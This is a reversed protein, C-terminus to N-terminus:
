HHKSKDKKSRPGRSSTSGSGSSGSSASGSSESPSRRRHKSKKAKKKRGHDESSSSSSHRRRKTKPKDKARDRNKDKNKDKSKDKCKDRNRERDVESESESERESAVHTIPNSDSPAVATPSPDSGTSVDTALDARLDMGAGAGSFSGSVVAAASPMSSSGSSGSGSPDSGSPGRAQKVLELCRERNDDNLVVFLSRLKGPQQSSVVQYIRTLHDDSFNAPLLSVAQIFNYIRQRGTSGKPPITVLMPRPDFGRVKYDGGRNNEKYISGLQHMIAIRIKTDPTIKNRIAVGKLPPPRTLPRHHRFFGSFLERIRKASRVSDMRVNYSNPRNPQFRFPNSVYVVEFDLVTRNVHLVVKIIDAVQRRANDQWDSTGSLRPLGQVSLWDEESRNIMWDTFEADAATRSDVQKQLGGHRNELYSVRDDNQRVSEKVVILQQDPASSAVELVRETQDFIQLIYHLGSVPNLHVGDPMLEQSSFSPLLHFNSPQNPSLM